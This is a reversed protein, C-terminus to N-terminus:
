KKAPRPAKGGTVTQVTESGEVGSVTVTGPDAGIGGISIAWKKKRLNWKM